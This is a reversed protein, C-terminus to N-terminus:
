GILAVKAKIELWEGRQHINDLSVIQYRTEGLLITCNPTVDPRFRITVTAGLQAQVSDAVWAESGHVNIWKARIYPYNADEEGCIDVWSKEAFSGTGDSVERQIRIPTRLEGAQM